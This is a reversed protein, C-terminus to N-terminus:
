TGRGPAGAGRCRRTRWSSGTAPAAVSDNLQSVTAFSQEAASASSRLSANERELQEVRLTLEGVRQILGRMDERMNAL